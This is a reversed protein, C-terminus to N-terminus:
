RRSIVSEIMGRGGKRGWRWWEENSRAKNIGWAQRHVRHWMEMVSTSVHVTNADHSTWTQLEVSKQCIFYWLLSVATRNRGTHTVYEMIDASLRIWKKRIILCHFASRGDKISTNLNHRVKWYFHLVVQFHVWESPCNLTSQLLRLSM